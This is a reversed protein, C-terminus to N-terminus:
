AERRSRWLYVVPIALVLMLMPAIGLPFEPVDPKVTIILDAEGDGAVPDPNLWDVHGWIVKGPEPGDTQVLDIQDSEDLVGDPEGSNDEWSELSWWNCFQPWLEHWDTYMPNTPDFGTTAEFYWTDPPCSIYCGDDVVDADHWVGDVTLYQAQLMSTPPGFVDIVSPIVDSRSIFRGRFLRGNGGAGVGLTAYAQIQESIDFFTCTEASSTGSYFATVYDWDYGYTVLFDELFGAMGGIKGAGSPELALPNGRMSLAWGVIGQPTNEWAPPSEIRVEYNVYGGPTVATIPTEPYVYFRVTQAEVPTTIAAFAGLLITIALVFLYYKRQL